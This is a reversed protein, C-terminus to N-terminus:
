HSQPLETHCACDHGSAAESLNQLIACDQSPQPQDCQHRLTVLQQQLTQLNAMQEAIRLIHHDLLENVSQCGEAPNNKFELLARIDTLGIQLSRCHRIFQLREQHEERYERYGASNRGPEQLLGAKEYYRVTEVDCDTRKALEGIRM